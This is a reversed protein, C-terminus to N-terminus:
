VTLSQVVAMFNNEGWHATLKGDEVSIIDIVSLTISKGTAPIELLTATHTGTIAKRTTVKNGEAIMDLVTVKIDSFAAHLINTFFYEMGGLGNDMGALASHNIFGPIALEHLAEMNGAEIVEKNYRQVLEKNQETTM